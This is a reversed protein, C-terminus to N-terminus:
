FDHRAPTPQSHVPRRFGLKSLFPLNHEFTAPLYPHVGMSHPLSEAKTSNEYASSPIITFCVSAVRVSFITRGQRYCAFQADRDTHNAVSPPPYENGSPGFVNMLASQPFEGAALQLGPLGDFRGQCPFQLFLQM